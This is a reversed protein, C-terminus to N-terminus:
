KRKSRKQKKKAPPTAVGLATSFVVCHAWGARDGWLETFYGSLSRYATPTMTKVTQEPPSYKERAVRAIHTDVPVVSLQDLSFLAVCDAVKLGVGKFATLAERVEELPKARLGLLYDEPEAAVKAVAEVIYPARYGLGLERLRAESAGALQQPTPFTYFKLEADESIGAVQYKNIITWIMGLIMKQDKDVLHTNKTGVLRIGTDELLQIANATNDIKHIRMRPNKNYRPLQM